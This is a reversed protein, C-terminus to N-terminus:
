AVFPYRIRSQCVTQYANTLGWVRAKNRDIDELLKRVSPDPKLMEELPLSGDCRKDFELPDLKIIMSIGPSESM